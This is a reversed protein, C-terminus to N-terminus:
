SCLASHYEWYVVYGLEFARNQHALISKLLIWKIEDLKLCNWKAEAHITWQFDM